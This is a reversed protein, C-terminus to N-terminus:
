ERLDIVEFNEGNIISMDYYDLYQVSKVEVMVSQDKDIFLNVMKLQSSYKDFEFIGEYELKPVRFHYTHKSKQDMLEINDLNGSIIDLISLHNNDISSYVLQRTENNITTVLSDEVIMKISQSDYVYRRYDVVYFIGSSNYENGFQSQFFNIEMKLILNKKLPEYFSNLPSHEGNLLTAHCIWVLIMHRM